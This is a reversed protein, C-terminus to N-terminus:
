MCSDACLTEKASSGDFFCNCEACDDACGTCSPAKCDGTPGPNMMQGMDDTSLHNAEACAALKKVSDECFKADGGQQPAPFADTGGTGDGDVPRAKCVLALNDLFCTFFDGVEDVCPMNVPVKCDIKESCLSRVTDGGEMGGSCENALKQVATCVQDCLQSLKGSGGTGATDDASGPPTDSNTPAQDSNTPAQDGSGVSPAQDANGPPQTEPSGGSQGSATGGGCASAVMGFALLTVACLQRYAM